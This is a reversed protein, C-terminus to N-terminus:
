HVYTHPNDFRLVNQNNAQLETFANRQAQAEVPRHLLTYVQELQFHFPASDELQPGISELVRLADEPRQKEQYARALKLAIAPNSHDQKWARELPKLALDWHGSGAELLGLEGNAVPDQPDRALVTNLSTRAQAERGTMADTRALGVLAPSFAPRLALAKEYSAKAGSTDGQARRLDGEATLLLPDQPSSGSAQELVEKASNFYELAILQEALASAIDPRTPALTQAKYLWPVGMRPNGSAVYDLGLHFYADVHDPHKDIAAFYSRRADEFQQLHSYCLGLNFYLADDSAEAPILKLYEIAQTYMAHQAFLTGLSFLLGPPMSNRYPVLLTDLRNTQKTQLCTEAFWLILIPEQQALRPDKEINLNAFLEAARPWNRSGVAAGIAYKLTVPNSSDIALAQNLPKSADMPKGNKLLTAGLETLLRPSTNDLRVAMRLSEEAATKNGVLEDALGLVEYFASSQTCGSRLPGLISLAEAPNSQQLAAVAAKVGNDCGAVATFLLIHVLFMSLM